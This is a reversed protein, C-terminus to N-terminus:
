TYLRACCWAVGRENKSGLPGLELEQQDGFRKIIKKEYTARDPSDQAMELIRGLHMRLARAAMTVSLFQMLKKRRDGGAAKNIRTLELIKGNSQALPYYIHEVTLKKCSVGLAARARSDSPNRLSPVM